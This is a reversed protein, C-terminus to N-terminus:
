YNTLEYSEYAESKLKGGNLRNLKDNYSYLKYQFVAADYLRGRPFVSRTWEPLPLGLSKETYLTHYLTFLDMMDTMNKGTYKRLYEKLNEFQKTQALVEPSQKVESFEQRYRAFCIFLSLSLIIYFFLEFLTYNLLVIRNM